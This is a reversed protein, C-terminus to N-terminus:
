TYTNVPTYSPPDYANGNPSRAVRRQQFSSFWSGRPAAEVVTGLLGFAGVIAPLRM